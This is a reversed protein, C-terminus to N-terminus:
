TGFESSLMKDLDRILRKIENSSHRLNTRVILSINSDYYVQSNNISNLWGELCVRIERILLYKRERVANVAMDYFIQLVKLVPSLSEYNLGEILKNLRNM